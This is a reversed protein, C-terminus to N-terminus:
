GTSPPNPGSEVLSPGDDHRHHVTLLREAKGIKVAAIAQAPNLGSITRYIECQQVEQERCAEIEAWMQAARATGFAKYTPIASLTKAVFM